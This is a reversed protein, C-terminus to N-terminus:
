GTPAATGGQTTGTTGTAPATTPAPTPTATPPTVTEPPTTTSGPAAPADEPATDTDSPATPTSSSSPPGGEEEPPVDYRTVFPQRVERGDAYRVVRTVTISFDKGEVPLRPGTIAKVVRRGGGGYLAVTVSNGDAYSRITVPVDTDNRWKLDIDPFNLTAERGAPYRSIYFSHPRHTILDLGAFYAANYLTTTYQSVGGGVSPVLKGDEIYPAEVYGGATTRQGAAANLSFTKGPAVVTGDIDKAIQTINTVRPQGPVFYTTFTGLLLHVKEAQATPIKPTSTGVPVRLRHIGGEVAATIRQALQAQRVERGDRAARVSLDAERPRWTVDGQTDLFTKPKQPTRAVADRAPRDRRRAVAKVLAALGEPDTSLEARSGDGTAALALAPAVKAPQLTLTAGAGELSLPTRLFTRALDAVRAIERASPVPSRGVPVAIPAREEAFAARIRRALARRDVVNGPRPPRTSVQLTEPDIVLTGPSAPDDLRTAAKATAAELAAPDVRDAVPITKTGFIGLFAPGHRRAGMVRELTRELDARWGAAAPRVTARRGNATLVVARRSALLPGLRSRLEARSDGAADLGAVEVGPMVRGSHTARVGIELAVLVVLLLAVPAIVALGVPTTPLRPRPARPALPTRTM